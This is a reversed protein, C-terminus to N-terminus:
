QTYNRPILESGVYEVVVDSQRSADSGPNQHVCTFACIELFHRQKTLAATASGFAPRVVQIQGGLQCDRTLVQQQNVSGTPWTFRDQKFSVRLRHM